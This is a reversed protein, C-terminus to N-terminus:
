LLDTIKLRNCSVKYKDHCKPFLNCKKGSQINITKCLQAYKWSVLIAKLVAYM